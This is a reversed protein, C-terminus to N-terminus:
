NSLSTTKLISPVKERQSTTRQRKSPLKLFIEKPELAQAIQSAWEHHTPVTQQSGMFRTSFNEKGDNNGTELRPKGTSALSQKTRTDLASNKWKSSSESPEQKSKPEWRSGEDRTEMIGNPMFLSQLSKEAEVRKRQSEDRRRNGVVLLRDVVNPHLRYAASNKALEQSKPSIVPTTHMENAESKMRTTEVKKERDTTAIMRRGNGVENRLEMTPAKLTHAQLGYHKPSTVLLNVSDVEHAGGFNQLRTLLTFDPRGDDLRNGSANAQHKAVMEGLVQREIKEEFGPRVEPEPKEPRKHEEERQKKKTRHEELMKKIKEYRDESQQSATQSGEVESIRDLQSPFASSLQGLKRSISLVEGFPQSKAAGSLVQTTGEEPTATTGPSVTPTNKVQTHM